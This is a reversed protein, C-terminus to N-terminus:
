TGLILQIGSNELRLQDFDCHEGLLSVIFILISLARIDNAAMAQTVPRKIAQQLRGISCTLLPYYLMLARLLGNCSKVLAVLRVFDHTLNQVVTCMCAVTEQLAKIHV